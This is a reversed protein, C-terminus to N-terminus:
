GAVLVDIIKACGGNCVYGAHDSVSEFKRGVIKPCEFEYNTCKLFRNILDLASRDKFEIKEVGSELQNLARIWIAAGLAGCAGGCLGIGGALGCVKIATEDSAGMRRALVAACSVPAAPTDTLDEAFAAAITDYAPPGFKGARHFCRIVGGKALFFMIMQGTTSTQDLETLEFCNIHKNRTRFVAVLRQAALIARTEAEPGAGYRRYAEAGAALAAGWIMGCQYGHQMMGGAFPVSAQEDKGSPHEFAENLTHLLATSCAGGRM